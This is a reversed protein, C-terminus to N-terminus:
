PAGDPSALMRLLARSRGNMPSDQRQPAVRTRGANRTVPRLADRKRRSADIQDALVRVVVVAEDQRHRNLLARRRMQARGSMTKRTCADVDAVRPFHREVREAPLLDRDAAPEAIGNAHRPRHRRRPQGPRRSCRSRRSDGAPRRARTTPPRRAPSRGHARPRRRSRRQSGRATAAHRLAGLVFEGADRAADHVLHGDGAGDSPCASSM